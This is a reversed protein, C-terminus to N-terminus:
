ASRGNRLSDQWLRESSTLNGCGLLTGVATVVAATWNGSREMIQRIDTKRVKYAEHPLLLLMRGTSHEQVECAAQCVSVSFHHHHHRLYCCSGHALCQTVSLLLKIRVIVEHLPRKKGEDQLHSSDPETLLLLKGSTVSSTGCLQNSPPCRPSSGMHKFM